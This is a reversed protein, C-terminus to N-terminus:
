YLKFLSLLYMINQTKKEKKIATNNYTNFLGILIAVKLELMKLNQALAELFGKM